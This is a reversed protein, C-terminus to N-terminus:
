TAPRMRKARYEWIVRNYRKVYEAAVENLRAVDDNFVADSTGPIARLSDAQLALSDNSSRISDLPVGAPMCAYGCVALFHIEGRAIAARAERVPDLRSLSDARRALEPSSSPLGTARTQSVIGTDAANQRTDPSPGCASVALIVAASHLTRM